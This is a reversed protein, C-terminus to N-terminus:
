SLTVITAGDGGEGESGARFDKAYGSRKLHERIAKKLAGSGHGHIIRVRPANKRYHTDLFADLRSLSEEIGQGRLDLEMEPELAPEKKSSRAEEMAKKLEASGHRTGGKPAKSQARSLGELPVRTRMSGVAVLAARGDIAVVEGDKKLTEVRVWDGVEVRDLRDGFRAEAEEAKKRQTEALERLANQADNAARMADKVADAGSLRQLNAIIDKAERRVEEIEALLGLRAEEVLTRRDAALAQRELDLKKREEVLEEKAADARERAQDLELAKQQLVKTLGDLASNGEGMLARARAVIAPALGLAQAIDFGSSSQPVDLTVRYTPRLKEPDFGVGANRFRPDAFPIAKLREFHTTVVVHAGRSAFSELLAQALSQGQNPDTDAAIEDLLVLSDANARALIGLIGTMHAAFTSLHTSISQEDGITADVNQFWGMKSRPSAPLHLGARVMLAFLGVTKMAVTKGGTNPGTIVLVLQDESLGLDNPVVLSERREFKQLALIPHRAEILDFGPRDHPLIPSADVDEALRAAATIFDVRGVARMASAIEDKVAVVEDTLQMLIRLEEEAVESQAIKLRNGLDVIAHPEIFVTQGSGSADHVIGPVEHKFSSKVPLVYRDGRITYYQEQLHAKVEDSALIELLKEKIAERCLFLKKRLAGLEKSADDALRGDPDFSSAVLEATQSLDEISAGIAYLRRHSDEKALLFRRLRVSTLMTEAIARLTLGDLTGGKEALDLPAAVDTAGSTPPEEKRALLDRAESILEIRDVADPRNSFPALASAEASGLPTRARARLASRIAGLELRDERM